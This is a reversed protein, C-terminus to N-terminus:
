SESPEEDTMNDTRLLIGSVLLTAFALLAVFFTVKAFAGVTGAVGTFAFMGALLAVMLFIVSLRIM